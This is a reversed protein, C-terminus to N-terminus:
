RLMGRKLKGKLLSAGAVAFVVGVGFMGLIHPGMAAVGAGNIAKIFAQIGWYNITLRSFVQVGSPFNSVPIMSGGLMSMIIFVSSLLAGAQRETRIFAYLFSIFGPILVNLSLVVLLVVSFSGWSIGFLVSGLGILVLLCLSGIAAAILIKSWIFESIELPSVSMRLLTRNEKERLLDEFVVNSIFLLFFIAFAPLMYSQVSLSLETREKREAKVTEQKLSIVPPLVYKSIGEIRRKMEVSLASVDADTFEDRNIYGKLLTIEDGFVSFLSSFLLSATDVIEEVVQPLFQEAPNKLLLIGAAQGDWVNKGFKEPIILMASAKGKAMQKRGEEEEVTKINLFKKLDGQSLSTLFLQSLISKDKDAALVSIRPLVEEGEKGFLLGFFFTFVLPMLMFGVIVVPNRWKRLFDKRVLLFVRRM